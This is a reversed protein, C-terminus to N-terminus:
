TVPMSNQWSSIISNASPGIQIRQSRCSTILRNRFPGSNDVRKSASRRAAGRILEVERPDAAGTQIWSTIDNIVSEPLREKRPPMRLDSDAHSVAKLLLSAEADGPVVAPGRDGGARLTKRSDLLLGGESKVSDVSHCKYCHQILVPRIRSEFFAIGNADGPATKEDSRAVGSGILLMIMLSLCTGKGPSWGRDWWFFSAARPAVDLSM